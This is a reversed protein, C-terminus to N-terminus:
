LVILTGTQHTEHLHCMIRFTGGRSAEFKVQLPPATPDSLETIGYGEIRFGHTKDTINNVVLRVEDDKHVTIQDPVFGPAGDVPGVTITRNVSEGACGVVALLAVTVVAATRRLRSRNDTAMTHVGYTHAGFSRSISCSRAFYSWRDM